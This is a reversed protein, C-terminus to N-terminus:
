SREDNRPPAHIIRGSGHINSEIRAPRSLLRMNGSGAMNIKASETPGAEADGSGAVSLEFEKMALEALRADGSGAIKLTVREASGQATITGSGAVSLNLEPQKVNELTIRSSGALTFDRFVRGPLIIDVSEARGFGMCNTAIMGNKIEIHALARPTGRIVVEDGEGGRYHVTGAAAITIKDGGDWAWRRETAGDETATTDECRPGWVNAGVGRLKSWEVAESGGIAFALFLAVIWVGFGGAAIWGLKKKM